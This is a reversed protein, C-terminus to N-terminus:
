VMSMLIDIYIEKECYGVDTLFKYYDDTNYGRSEYYDFYLLLDLVSLQWSVYSACKAGNDAIIYKNSYTERHTPYHMGFLNNHYVFLKSKFWGTELRCQNIIIEYNPVELLILLEKLNEESFESLMLEDLRYIREINKEKQEENYNSLNPAFLSNFCTLILLISICIRKM